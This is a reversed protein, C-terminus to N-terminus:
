KESHRVQELVARIDQDWRQFYPELAPDNMMRSLDGPNMTALVTEDDEAFVAIKLPLFAVMAPYKESIERVEDLKGFFIVRYFDSKYGMGKLGGDCKQIHAITYGRAKLAEQVELMTDPFSSQTRAMLPHGALAINSGLLGIVFLISLIKRNLFIM